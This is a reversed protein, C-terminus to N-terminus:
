NKFTLLRNNVSLREASLLSAASLVSCAPLSQASEWSLATKIWSGGTVTSQISTLSILCFMFIAGVILLAGGLFAWLKASGIKLAALLTFVLGVIVFVAAMCTLFNFKFVSKSTVGAVTNESIKGGFAIKFVSYSETSDRGTKVVIGALFMMIVAVLAFLVAGFGLYKGVDKKKAM